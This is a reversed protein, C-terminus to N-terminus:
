VTFRAVVPLGRSIMELVHQGNDLVGDDGIAIDAVGDVWLNERRQEIYSEITLPMADRFNDTNVEELLFQATLSPITVTYTVITGTKCGESIYKKADDITLEPYNVSNEQM